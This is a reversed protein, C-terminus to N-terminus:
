INNKYNSIEENKEFVEKFYIGGGNHKFRNVNLNYGKILYERILKNAWRRFYIGNIWM